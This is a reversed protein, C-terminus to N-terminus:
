TRNRNGNPSEPILAAITYQPRTNATAPTPSVSERGSLFYMRTPFLARIYSAYIVAHRRESIRAM